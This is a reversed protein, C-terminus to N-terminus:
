EQVFDMKDIGHIVPNCELILGVMEGATIERVRGGGHACVGSM